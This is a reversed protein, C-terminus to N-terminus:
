LTYSYDHVYRKELFSITQLLFANHRVVDQGANIYVYLLICGLQTAPMEQESEAKTATGIHGITM